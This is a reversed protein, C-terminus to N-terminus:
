DTELAKGQWADGDALAAEIAARIRGKDRGWGPALMLRAPGEGTLRHITVGPDLWTLFESALRAYGDLTALQLRGARLEEALPTGALVHLNHIKVGAVATRNLLAATARRDDGREGPLDLIVHAIVELGAARARAAADAFAAATHGRNLRELLDDNATQLGLELWVPKRRALGALLDVVEDPLCDPRTGVSLAVVRPDALAERYLAALREVQADTATGEQFYAVAARANYRRAIMELGAALQDQIPGHVPGHSPVLAQESCFTCGGTGIRGDRNPCGFGARLTIKHVRQGFRARLAPALRRYRDGGPYAPRGAM